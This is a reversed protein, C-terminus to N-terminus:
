KFPLNGWEEHVTFDLSYICGMSLYHSSCFVWMVWGLKTPFPLIGRPDVNRSLIELPNRVVRAIEPMNKVDMDWTNAARQIASDRPQGLMARLQPQNALDVILFGFRLLRRQGTQHKQAKKTQRRWAINSRLLFWPLDQKALCALCRLGQQCTCPGSAFIQTVWRTGQSCTSQGWARFNIYWSWERGFISASTVDGVCFVDIM